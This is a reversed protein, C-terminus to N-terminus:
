TESAVLPKRGYVVRMEHWAHISKDYMCARFQAVHIMVEDYTWGFIRTLLALCWNECGTDIHARTWIGLEKQKKDKPWPGIPWKYKKEVVETFGADRIWEHMFYMVEFTRGIIKGAEIGEDQWRGMM